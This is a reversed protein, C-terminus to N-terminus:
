DASHTLLMGNLLRFFRSELWGVLSSAQTPSPGWYQVNVKIYSNHAVLFKQAGTQNNHSISIDNLINSWRAGDEALLEEARKFASVITRLSHATVARAVNATPVHVTLIVMPERSSRRYRSQVGPSIVMRNRWDFHAYHRFFMALLEPVTVRGVERHLIQHLRSLMMTIHIGGLLGFKSSYVGSSKAWQTICRHALCFVYMDPVM